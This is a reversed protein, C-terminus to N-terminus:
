LKCVVTLVPPQFNAALATPIVATAFTSIGPLVIRHSSVVVYIVIGVKEVKIKVNVLANAL